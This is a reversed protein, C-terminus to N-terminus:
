HHLKTRKPCAVNDTKTKCSQININQLLCYAYRYLFKEYLEFASMKYHKYRKGSERLMPDITIDLKHSDAINLISKDSYMTNIEFGYNDPFFNNKPLTIWTCEEKYENIFDRHYKKPIKYKRWM